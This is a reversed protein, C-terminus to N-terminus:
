RLRVLQDICAIVRRVIMPGIVDESKPINRGSIVHGFVIDRRNYLGALVRALAAQGFAQLTVQFHSCAKKLRDSPIQIDFSAVPDEVDGCSFKHPLTPKNFGSLYKLWYETGHHEQYVFYGLLDVFHPTPSLPEQRYLADIAESLKSMSIGDYLAHHIILILTLSADDDTRILRWYVPPKAFASVSDFGISKIVSEVFVNLSTNALKPIELWDMYHASHVAQVWTGTEPLFHFSTRLINFIEVASQWAQKLRGLDLSPSLAYPFAHVYLSGASNVTQVLKIFLDGKLQILTYSVQSLMGAQLITTPFVEICDSDSLRVFDNGILKAIESRENRLFSEAQIDNYTTGDTPQSQQFAIHRITPHQMIGLATINWGEKKLARSLGVSKISDLGYTVLSSMPQIREEDIGLFKSVVASIRSEVDQDVSEIELEDGDLFSEFDGDHFLQLESSTTYFEELNREPSDALLMAIKEFESFFQSLFERSIPDTYATDVKLEGTDKNIM